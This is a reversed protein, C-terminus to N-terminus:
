YLHTRGVEVRIDDAAFTGRVGDLDTVLERVASVLGGALPQDDEDESKSADVGRILLGEPFSGIAIGHLEFGVSALAESADHVAHAAARLESPTYRAAEVVLQISRHRAENRLRTLDDGAEGAWRVTVTRSEHDNRSTVLKDEYERREARWTNFRMLDLDNDVEHTDGVEDLVARGNAEISGM